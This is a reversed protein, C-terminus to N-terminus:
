FSALRRRLDHMHLDTICARKCIREWGSQPSVMHGEQRGPFVFPSEQATHRRELIGMAHTSLVVHLERHTKSERAPNTWLATEHSVHEWRLSKLNTKRVGTFHLLLIFDRNPEEDV